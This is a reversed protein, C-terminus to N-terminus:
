KRGVHVRVGALVSRLRDDIRAEGSGEADGQIRVIGAEGFVGVRSTIWWEMGAGYLWGIGKTRFALTQSVGGITEVTTSTAQHYDAGFKGYIRVPGIPGAILGALTWVDADLSNKFTFADGGSIDTTKPKVYAGEVGLYRTIWLTAGASYAIEGGGGQCPTANGCAIAAQDSYKSLGSAGSVVLGKPSQRWSQMRSREPTTGDANEEPIGYKGKILLLTPSAGGLNVVLTNVPRVWYLGSIPRRDCGPEVPAAPAGVEVIVVRRKAACIDVSVNADIELKNIADKMSAPVTAVGSADAAGSGANATNFVVEVPTGPPVNRVMVTQAEAGIAGVSANLVAALVIPMWPRQM